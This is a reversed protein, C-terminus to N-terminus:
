VARSIMSLPIRSGRGFGSPALNGEEQKAEQQRETNTGLYPFDDAQTEFPISAVASM